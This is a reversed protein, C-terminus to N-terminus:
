NTGSFSLSVRVVDKTTATPKLFPVRDKYVPEEYHQNMRVNKCARNQEFLPIAHLVYVVFLNSGGAVGDKIKTSTHM